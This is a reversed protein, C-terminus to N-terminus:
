TPTYRALADYLTTAAYASQIRQAAEPNLRVARGGLLLEPKREAMSDALHRAIDLTPVWDRPLALSLAIVDPQTKLARALLDETPVDAGLLDVVWGEARFAAAVLSAGLSHQNGPPCAVLIRPANAVPGPRKELAWRAAMTTARLSAAHEDAPSIRGQHWAVGIIRMAAALFAGREPISPGPAHAAITRDADAEDGRLLAEALAPAGPVAHDAEDEQPIWTAPNSILTMTVALVSQAQDLVDAGAEQKLVKTLAELEAELRVPRNPPSRRTLEWISYNTFVALNGTRLAAVLFDLHRSLREPSTTAPKNALVDLAAAIIQTHRRRLLRAAPDAREPDVRFRVAGEQRRADIAVNATM